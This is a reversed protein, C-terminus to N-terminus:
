IVEPNAPTIISPYGGHARVGAAPSLDPPWRQTSGTRNTWTRILELRSFQLTRMRRGAPQSCHLRDVARSRPVGWRGRLAGVPGQWGGERRRPSRGPPVDGGAIAPPCGAAPGIPGATGNGGGGPRNAPRVSPGRFRAESLLCWVGHRGDAARFRAPWMGHRRYAAGNGPVVCRAPWMGHRRYAAGNGPVVCRAESLFCWVGHRGYGAGCGTGAMAPVM